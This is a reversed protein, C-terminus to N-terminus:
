HNGSPKQVSHHLNRALHIRSRVLKFLDRLNLVKKRRVFLLEFLLLFLNFRSLRIVGM